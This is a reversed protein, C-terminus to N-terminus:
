RLRGMEGLPHLKFAVRGRVQHTDVYLAPSDLTQPVVVGPGYRENNNNYPVLDPVWPAVLYRGDPIVREDPKKLRRPPPQWDCPVGSVTLTQGDFVLRDGAVALVRTLYLGPQVYYNQNQGVSQQGGTTEFIVWDGLRLRGPPADGGPFYVVVDGVNLPGVPRNVTVPQVFTNFLIPGPVYVVVLMLVALVAGVRYTYVRDFGAVRTAYLAGAYHVAFALGLFLGSAQYGLCVLAALVLLVWAGLVMWGLATAGVARLPWGPVAARVFLGLPP